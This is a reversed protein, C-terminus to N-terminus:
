NSYCYLTSFSYRLLQYKTWCLTNGKNWVGISTLLRKAPWSLCLDHLWGSGRAMQVPSFNLVDLIHSITCLVFRWVSFFSIGPIWNTLPLYQFGTQIVHCGIFDDSQLALAHARPGEKLSAKKYFRWMWENGCMQVSKYLKASNPSKSPKWLWPSFSRQIPDFSDCCWSSISSNDLRIKNM